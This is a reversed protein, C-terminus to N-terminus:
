VEYEFENIAVVVYDSDWVDGVKVKKAREFEDDTHESTTIADTYVRRPRSIKDMHHIAIGQHTRKEKPIEYLDSDSAGQGHRNYFGGRVFIHEVKGDETRCLYREVEAGLVSCYVPEVKRIVKWVTGDKQNYSKGVELKLKM